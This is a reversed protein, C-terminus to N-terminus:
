RAFNGQRANTHCAISDDRSRDDSRVRKQGGEGRLPSLSHPHPTTLRIAEAMALSEGREWGEGWGEGRQPSLSGPVAGTACAALRHRGAVQRVSRRHRQFVLLRESFELASEMGNPLNGLPVPQYGTGGPGAPFGNSRSPGRRGVRHAFISDTFSEM